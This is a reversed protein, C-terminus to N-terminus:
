ARAAPVCKCFVITRGASFSRSVLALLVAEKSAGAAGKLRVIQARCPVAPPPTPTKQKTQTPPLPHWHTAAARFAHMRARPLPSCDLLLPAPPAPQLLRVEQRLTKPAMAAPDAALRVPQKLSLAVLQQVDDSFTASFLMTQRQKPALRLLERLQTCPPLPM